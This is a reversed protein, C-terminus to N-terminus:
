CKYLVGHIFRQIKTIFAEGGKCAQTHHQTLHELLGGGNIVRKLLTRQAGPETALVGQPPVRRALLPADGALQTFGDTWCLYDCLQESRSLNSKAIM